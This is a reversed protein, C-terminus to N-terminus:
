CYCWYCYHYLLLSLLLLMTISVLLLLSLSVVVLVLLLLLLLLSLLLLQIIIIIITILHHHHHQQQQWSNNTVVVRLSVYNNASQLCEFRDCGMWRGQRFKSPDFKLAAQVEVPRVELCVLGRSFCPFSKPRVPTPPSATGLLLFVWWLQEQTSSVRGCHPPLTVGPVHTVVRSCSYGGVLFLLRGTHNFRYRKVEGSVGDPDQRGWIPGMIAGHVKSDPILYM